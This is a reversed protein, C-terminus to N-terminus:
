DHLYQESKLTQLTGQLGPKKRNTGCELEGFGIRWDCVHDCFIVWHLKTHWSTVCDCTHRVYLVDDHKGASAPAPTEGHCAGHRCTRASLGDEGESRALGGAPRTSEQLGEPGRTAGDAVPAAGGVPAEPEDLAGRHCTGIM